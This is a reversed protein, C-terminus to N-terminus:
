QAILRANIPHRPFGGAVEVASTPLEEAGSRLVAALAESSGCAWAAGSVVEQDTMACGTALLGLVDTDGDM